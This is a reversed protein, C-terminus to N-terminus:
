PNLQVAILRKGAEELGIVGHRIALLTLAVDNKVNLKEFIRSRYSHVTKPSLHLKDAIDKVLVGRIVMMMVEMERDSLDHFAADSKHDVKALALRSAIEPSIVRQGVSVAKIARVLEEKSTDKTLYGQAGAELLRFPFLNNIASSVILIKIDPDIRLLKNTVELGSIDPLKFDLIVVHPHLDRVLQVGENGTGAEGVVQIGKVEKLMQRIGARVLSHDEILITKIM